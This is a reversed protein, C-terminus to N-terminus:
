FASQSAFSPSFLDSLHETTHKCGNCFRLPLRLIYLQKVVIITPEEWRSPDFGPSDLRWLCKLLKLVQRIGNRSRRDRSEM